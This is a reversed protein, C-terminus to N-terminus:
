PAPSNSSEETSEVDQTVGTKRETERGVEEGDGESKM